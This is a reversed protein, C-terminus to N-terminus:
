VGTEVKQISAQVATTSNIVNALMLTGHETFVYPMYRRGSRAKKSTEFQSRLGEYEDKTLQFM